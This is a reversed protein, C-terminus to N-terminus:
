SNQNGGPTALTALIENVDGLDGEIKMVKDILDKFPEKISCEINKLRLNDVLQQKCNLIDVLYPVTETYTKDKSTYEEISDGGFDIYELISCTDNIAAFLSAIVNPFDEFPTNENIYENGGCDILSQRITNKINNIEVLKELLTNSEINAM